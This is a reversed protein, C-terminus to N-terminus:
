RNERFIKVHLISYAFLFCTLYFFIRIRLSNQYFTGRTYNVKSLEDTSVKSGMSFNEEQFIGEM